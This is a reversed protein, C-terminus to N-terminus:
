DNLTINYAGDMLEATVVGAVAYHNM